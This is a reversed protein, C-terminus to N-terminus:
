GPHEPAPRVYEIEKLRELRRVAARLEPHRPEDRHEELEAYFSVVAEATKGILWPSADPLELRELLLAANMAEASRWGYAEGMRDLLEEAAEMHDLPEGCLEIWRELAEWEEPAANQYVEPRRVEGNPLLGGREVLALARRLEDTTMLKLTSSPERPRQRRELAEVRRKLRRM